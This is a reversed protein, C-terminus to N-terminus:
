EKFEQENELFTECSLSSNGTKYNTKKNFRLHRLRGFAATRELHDLIQVQGAFSGELEFQYTTLRNKDPAMAVHPEKFGIVKFELLKSEQSLFRLLENQIDGNNTINSIASLSDLQKERTKLSFLLQPASALQTALETQRKHLAIESLTKEVAFHYCIWIGTLIGAILIKNKRNLKM